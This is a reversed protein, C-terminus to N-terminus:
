ENACNMRKGIFDVYENGRPLDMDAILKRRVTTVKEGTLPNMGEKEYAAFYIGVGRKQWNHVDNFNIGKQFLFENKWAVSQGSLISTAKRATIGEKRLTWYCYGNLANRAADEQRWLFYDKVRTENPLPIMRCDFAAPTCLRLSMASSAVGALVSDYKRVKRGFTNEDLAFLLSIEDSQTYGYIVRFGCDMLACVTNVMADRFTEDFPAEFKCTEKTLRTFSRGDIRAVMWTEPTIYQDMSEEFVRMQKDLEDFRM